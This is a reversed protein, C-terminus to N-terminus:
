IARKYFQRSLNLIKKIGQSSPLRFNGKKERWNWVCEVQEKNFNEYKWQLFYLARGDEELKAKAATM